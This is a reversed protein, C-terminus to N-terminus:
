YGPHLPYECPTWGTYYCSLPSRTYLLHGHERSAVHKRALSSARTQAHVCEVAASDRLIMRREKQEHQENMKNEVSDEVQVSSIRYGHQVALEFSKVVFSTVAHHV